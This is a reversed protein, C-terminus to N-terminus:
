VFGIFNPAITVPLPLPNFVDPIVPLLETEMVEPIKDAADPPLVKGPAGAFQEV